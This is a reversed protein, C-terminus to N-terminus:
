GAGVDPPRKQFFGILPILLMFVFLGLYPLMNRLFVGVVNQGLVTERWRTDLSVLSAGLTRVVGQDCNLGDAYASTLSVLSPAGYTDRLFRVFSQSEAYALYARSADLPFTECLEEISLLSSNQSAISLAQDYDPNPYLEALSAIGESLWVPLSAYGEGLNRYLMVHALEHPILTEMEIGQGPGPSVSLMVVGLKPNAHGGQWEEGGLYLASQLDSPNAYIYVDVPAVVQTPILDNITNLGRRGTDLLMDGFADDGEYWHVQLREDNRQQWVFRNDIYQDSFNPSRITQGNSLTVDFWYTITVFPRLVNQVVDYRYAVAGNEGLEVPFRRPIEDFNDTFVITANVIPAPSQIRAQFTIQQGFEVSMGADTVAIGSQAWAQQPSGLLLVVMMSAFVFRRM